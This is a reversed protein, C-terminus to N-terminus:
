FYLMYLMLNVVIIVIHTVKGVARDPEYRTQLTDNVVNLLYWKFSKCNNRERLEVRKYIPGTQRSRIDPRNQYLFERFDDMWVEAVRKFNILVAQPKDYTYPVNRRYVHGVRSCPMNMM